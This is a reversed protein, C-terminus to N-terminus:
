LRPLNMGLLNNWNFSYAVVSRGYNGEKDNELKAEIVDDIGEMKLRRHTEKGLLQVEGRQNNWERQTNNMHDLFYWIPKEDEIFTLCIPITLIVPLNLVFDMTQQYYPSIRLLQAILALFHTSQDRDVISFRNTCLHCIYQESPLLVQTFVTEHVAQQEVGEKNKLSALTGPTTLAEAFLLSPPNLTNILQPILDAKVLSYHVATSCNTLLNNLMKMAATTITRNPSSLLVVISQVFSTSYDDSSSALSRPFANTSSRGRHSMIELLTVAQAELAADLAPKSKMTAVLSRFIVAKEWETEIEEEDWNLFPSCDASFPLQPSPLDSLTQSPIADTKKDIETM